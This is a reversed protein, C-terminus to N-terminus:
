SQTLSNIACIAIDHSAIFHLVDNMRSRVLSVSRMILSKMM